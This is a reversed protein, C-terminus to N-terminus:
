GAVEFLTVGNRAMLGNYRPPTGTLNVYWTANSNVGVRISYVVAAASGPSDPINFALPVARAVTTVTMDTVGICVSGRFLCATLTRGTTSCDFLFAGCILITSSASRPTITGSWIETGGTIVPPTNAFPITTTGTQAEIVSSFARLVSGAGETMVPVGLVTPRESYDHSGLIETSM